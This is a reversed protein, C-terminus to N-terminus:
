CTTDCLCRTAQGTRVSQPAVNSTSSYQACSAIPIRRWALLPPRSGARKKGQCSYTLSVACVPDTGASCRDSFRNYSCCRGTLGADHRTDATAMGLALGINPSIQDPCIGAPQPCVPGLVTRLQIQMIPTNSRAARTFKTHLTATCHGLSSFLQTVQLPRM